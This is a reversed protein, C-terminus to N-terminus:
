AHVIDLRAKVIDGVLGDELWTVNICQSEGGGAAGGTFEGTAEMINAVTGAIAARETVELNITGERMLSVTETEVYFTEGTSPRFKAEHNVERLSVAYVNGAVSGKTIQKPLTGKKVGLGFDLEADELKGSVNVSHESAYAKQGKFANKTYLDYNQIPM